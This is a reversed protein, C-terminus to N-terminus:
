VPRSFHYRTVVIVSHMCIMMFQAYIERNFELPVM